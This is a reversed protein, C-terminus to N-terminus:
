NLLTLVFCVIWVIFYALNQKTCKSRQYLYVPVLWTWGSFKEANHGAKKLKKEDWFALGINLAVTIFWYNNSKVAIDAIFNNRHVARAIFYEIFLGIIPAFALVWIITNNIDDGSLPPPASKDLHIHLETNEIKLWETFGKKWVPTNNSITSSKIFKILENESIPGKIEGNKEYHWTAETTHSENM